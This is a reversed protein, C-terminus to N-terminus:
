TKVNWIILRMTSGITGSTAMSIKGSSMLRVIRISTRLLITTQVQFSGPPPAPLESCFNTIYREVPLTLVSKLSLSDSTVVVEGGAAGPAADGGAAAPEPPCMKSMRHLQTLYERFAM